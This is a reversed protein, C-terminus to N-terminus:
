KWGIGYAFGLQNPDTFDGLNHHRLNEIVEYETQPNHKLETLYRITKKFMRYFQFRSTTDMFIQIITPKDLSENKLRQQIKGDYKTFDKAKVILKGKEGYEGRFDVFM